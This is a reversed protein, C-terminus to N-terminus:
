QQLFYPHGDCVKVSEARKGNVKEQDGEARRLQQRGQEENCFIQLLVSRAM